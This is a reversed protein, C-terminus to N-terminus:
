HQLAGTRDIVLVYALAERLGVFIRINADTGNVRFHGFSSCEPMKPRLLDFVDGNKKDFSIGNERPMQRVTGWTCQEFMGLRTYFREIENKQLTTICWNNTDCKAFSFRVKSEPFHPPEQVSERIKVAM